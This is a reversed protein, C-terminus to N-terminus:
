FTACKKCLITVDVEATEQEPSPTARTIQFTPCPIACAFCVDEGCAECSLLRVSSQKCTACRTEPNTKQITHQETIPLNWYDTINM